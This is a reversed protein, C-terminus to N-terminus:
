YKKKLDCTMIQQLITIFFNNFFMQKINNIENSRPDEKERIYYTQYCSILIMMKM